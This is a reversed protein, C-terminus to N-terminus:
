TGAESTPSAPLGVLGWPPLVGPWEFAQLRVVKMPPRVVGRTTQAGGSWFSTTQSGGSWFNATQGGRHFTPLEVAGKPPRVLMWRSMALRIVGVLMVPEEPAGIVPLGVAGKTCSAHRGRTILSGGADDRSLLGRSTLDTDTGGGIL